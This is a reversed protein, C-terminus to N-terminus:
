FVEERSDMTSKGRFKWLEKKIGQQNIGMTISRHRQFCIDEGQYRAGPFIVKYITFLPTNDQIAFPSIINFIKHYLKDQITRNAGFVIVDIRIHSVCLSSQSLSSTMTFISTSIPISHSYTFLVLSQWSGDSALLPMSLIRSWFEKLSCPQCRLKPSKTQIVTLPYLKTKLWWMQPLKYLLQLFSIYRDWRTIWRIIINLIQM